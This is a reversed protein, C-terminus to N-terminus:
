KELDTNNNKDSVTMIGNFAKTFEEWNKQDLMMEELLKNAEEDYIINQFKLQSNRYTKYIKDTMRKTEEVTESIEPLGIDNATISLGIKNTLFDFIKRYEYCKFEECIEEPYICDPILYEREGTGNDQFPGSTNLQDLPAKTIYADETKIRIIYISGDKYDSAFQEAIIMNTTASVFRGKGIMGHRFVLEEITINPNSRCYQELSTKESTYPYSFFGSTQGKQDGRFLYIYRDKIFKANPKMKEKFELRESRKPYGSENLLTKIQDDLDKKTGKINITSHRNMLTQIDIQQSKNENQNELWEEVLDSLGECIFDLADVDLNKNKLKGSKLINFFSEVEESEIQPLVHKELLEIQELSLGNLNKSM